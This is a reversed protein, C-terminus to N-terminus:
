GGKRFKEFSISITDIRIYRCGSWWDLRPIGLFIKNNNNIMIIIIIINIYKSQIKWWNNWYYSFITGILWM